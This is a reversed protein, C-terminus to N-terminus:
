VEAEDLIRQALHSATYDHQSDVNLPYAERVFKEITASISRIKDIDTSDLVKTAISVALSRAERKEGLRKPDHKCSWTVIESTLIAKKAIDTNM